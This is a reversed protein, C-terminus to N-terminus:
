KNLVYKQGKNAVILVVKTQDGKLQIDASDEKSLVIKESSDTCGSVQDALVQTMKQSKADTILIFHNFYHANLCVRAKGKELGGTDVVATISIQQYKRDTSDFFYYDVVPSAMTLVAFVLSTNRFHKILKIVETNPQEKKQEQAILRYTLVSMLFVLGPLGLKLIEIVNMGEM